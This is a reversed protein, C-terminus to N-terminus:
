IILERVEKLYEDTIEHFARAMNMLESMPSHNAELTDQAPIASPIARM